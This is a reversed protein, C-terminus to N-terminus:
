KSLRREKEKRLKPVIKKVIDRIDEESFGIQALKAQADPDNAFDRQFSGMVHDVDIEEIPMANLEKLANRYALQEIASRVMRKGIGM